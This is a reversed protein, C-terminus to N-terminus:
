NRLFKDPLPPAPPPPPLTVNEALVTLDAKLEAKNRSSTSKDSAVSKLITMPSSKDSVDSKPITIPSSKDSIVSKTITIPSSKDSIVSKPITMPSSKDSTVSKPIIMPSSKDSTVSKPITMPSSKDSTVSKPITMPSSKDSVINKQLTRPSSKDSDVCKQMTKPSSKETIFCRKTMNPSPKEHDVYKHKMNDTNSKNLKESDDLGEDLVIKCNGTGPKTSKAQTDSNGTVNEESRDSVTISFLTEPSSLPLSQKMLIDQLERIRTKCTNNVSETELRKWRTNKKLTLLDSQASFDERGKSAPENELTKSKLQDPQIHFMNSTCNKSSTKSITGLVSISEGINKTSLSKSKKSVKYLINSDTKHNRNDSVIKSNPSDSDTKDTDCDLSCLRESTLSVEFLSVDPGSTKNEENRSVCSVDDEDESSQKSEHESHHESVMKPNTRSTEEKHRALEGHRKDKHKVYKMQHVDPCSARTKLQTPSATKDSSYSSWNDLDKIASDASSSKRRFKTLMKDKHKRRRGGQFLNPNSIYQTSVEDSDSIGSESSSYDEIPSSPRNFDNSLKGTSEPIDYVNNENQVLTSRRQSQPKNYDSVNSSRGSRHNFPKMQGNLITKHRPLSYSQRIDQRQKVPTYRSTMTQFSGYRQSTVFVPKILNTAFYHFTSDRADTKSAYHDDSSGDCSLFQTARTKDTKNANDCRNEKQGRSSDQDDDEEEPIHGLKTKVLQPCDRNTSSVARSLRYGPFNRGTQSFHISSEEPCTAANMFHHRYQNRYIQLCQPHTEVNHGVTQPAQVLIFEGRFLGRDGDQPLGQTLGTAWRPWEQSGNCQPPYCKNTSQHGTSRFGHQGTERSGQQGM